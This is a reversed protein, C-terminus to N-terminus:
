DISPSANPCEKTRAGSCSLSSLARASRHINGSSVGHPTIARVLGFAPSDAPRTRTACFEDVFQGMPTNREHRHRGVFPPVFDTKLSAHTTLAEGSM